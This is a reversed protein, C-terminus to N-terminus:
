LLNSVESIMIDYIWFRLAKKSIERQDRPCSMIKADRASFTRSIINLAQSMGMRRRREFFTGIIATGPQIGRNADERKLNKTCRAWCSFIFYALQFSLQLLTVSILSGFFINLLSYSRFSCIANSLRKYYLRILYGWNEFYSILLEKVERTKYSIM